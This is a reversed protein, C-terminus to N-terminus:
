KTAGQQYVKPLRRGLGCIIEYPITQAAEAWREVSIEERGQRGLLVVEGGIEASADTVDVTCQDMSVNGVLPCRVGGVLVDQRNSLIRPLGDAYGVPLLALRTPRDTVFSGGYGVAVGAPVERVQTIRATLSMARRLPFPLKADARPPIGYLLLGPRVLDHHAEPYLLTAASNAIHCLLTSPLSMRGMLTSFRALQERAYREDSAEATALHSEIGILELDPNRLARQILAPMDEISAGVRTMGTDVKLHVKAKTGLMRAAAAVQDLAHESGLTIQLDAQIAAPYAEPVLLGLLLMPHNFGLSRLRLGEAVTAVGLWDAGAELASHAVAIAGHGYGDAKVVAMLRTSPPLWTRLSRVNHAIAALDVTLWAGRMAAATPDDEPLAPITLPAEIM